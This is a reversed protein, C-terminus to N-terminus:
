QEFEDFFRQEALQFDLSNLVEEDDLSIIELKCAVMPMEIGVTKAYESDAKTKRQAARKWIWCKEWFDLYSENAMSEAFHRTLGSAIETVSCVYSFM